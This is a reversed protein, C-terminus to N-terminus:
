FTMRFFAISLASFGLWGVRQMRFAYEPGRKEIKQSISYLGIMSILHIPIMSKHVLIPPIGSYSDEEFKSEPATFALIATITYLGFTVRAFNKHIDESKKSEWEDNIRLSWYFFNQPDKSILYYWSLSKRDVEKISLLYFLDNNQPNSLLIARSIQDSKRYMSKIAQEGYLNTTLWSVWTLMGFLQHYALMERRLSNQNFDQSLLSYVFIFFLFISNLFKKM